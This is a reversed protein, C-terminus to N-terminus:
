LINRRREVKKTERGRDIGNIKRNISSKKAIIYEYNSLPM